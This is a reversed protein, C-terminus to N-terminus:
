SKNIQTEYFQREFLIKEYSAIGIKILIEGTTQAADRVCVSVCVSSCKVFITNKSEPPDFHRSVIVMKHMLNVESYSM